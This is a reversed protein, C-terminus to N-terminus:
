RKDSPFILSRLTLQVPDVRLPMAEREFQHGLYSLNDDKGM